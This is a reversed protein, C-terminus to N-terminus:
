VFIIDKKQLYHGKIHTKAYCSSIFHSRRGCRTCYKNLSKFSEKLYYGEVHRKQICNSTNHGDRGCRFCKKKSQLRPIDREENKFFKKIKKLLCHKKTHTSIYSSICNCKENPNIEPMKVQIFNLTKCDKGFHGKNGCIYCRDNSFILMQKITKINDDSLNIQCFSGGRVNLIGYKNMMKLTYKDEDYNDCDPIIEIIELPKYKKTWASGNSSFHSELRITPNNTKGIYYKHNELKLIYIYVM